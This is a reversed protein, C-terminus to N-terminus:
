KISITRPQADESKPLVLALVGNKFTASIEDKKINNPLTFSRSFKGYRNEILHFKKNEEEKSISNEGSITLTNDKLDINVNEKEMEPISLMIGFHDNTESIDAKPSFFSTKQNNESENLFSNFLGSFTPMLSNRYAEAPNQKFRVLTM